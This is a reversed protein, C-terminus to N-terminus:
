SRRAERQLSRVDGEVDNVRDTLRHLEHRLEALREGLQFLQTSIEDFTESIQEPSM